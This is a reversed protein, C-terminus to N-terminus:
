SRDKETQLTAIGGDLAGACRRMLSYQVEEPVEDITIPVSSCVVGTSTLLRNSVNPPCNSDPLCFLCIVANAYEVYTGSGCDYPIIDANKVCSAIGISALLTVLFLAAAHYSWGHPRSRRQKRVDAHLVSGNEHQRFLHSM